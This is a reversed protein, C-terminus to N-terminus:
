RGTAARLLQQVWLAIAADIDPLAAREEPSLAALQAAIMRAFKSDSLSAHMLRLVCWAGCTTIDQRQRQFRVRSEVVPRGERLLLRELLPRDVGVRRPDAAYARAADLPLGYPDFYHYAGRRWMVAVWHGTREDRVPLFLLLRGRADMADRLSGTHIALQPYSMIPVGPLLMRLDGDSLMVGRAERAAAALSM